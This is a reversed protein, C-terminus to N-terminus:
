ADVVAAEAHFELAEIDPEGSNFIVVRHFLNQRSHVVSNGRIPRFGRIDSSTQDAIIRVSNFLHSAIQLWGFSKSM